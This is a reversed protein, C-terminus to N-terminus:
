SALGENIRNVIVDVQKTIMRGTKQLRKDTNGNESLQKDFLTRAEKLTQQQQAIDRGMSRLIEFFKVLRAEREKLKTKDRRRARLLKAKVKEDAEKELRQIKSMVVLRTREQERRREDAFEERIMATVRKVVSSM